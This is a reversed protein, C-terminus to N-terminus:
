SEEEKVDVYKTQYALPRFPVGGEQYFKGFFELYQLRAAHVYTGIINVGINFVHGIVFVIAFAIVNGPLAGLINMVSAIVSTALMLAMLRSYSLVDSLWSTVDYLSAIGGFAKGLIGKKHRGQTLVLAAVGIWLGSATGKLAFLVIGAFLIWWPVVDLFGDLARGDRIEMYIHVCQGFLLQVIGMGIAVILVSMPNTLPSILSPLTITHSMFNQSFVTIADGFFSGTVLGFLITSVGLYIGLQFMYGITKKPHYRVTIIISVVLLLIGYGVDAFMFGFFLIFFAFILPNPDIGKYAPLSYMETVMNICSMWKPNHLLTPVTEESQPESFEYACAFSSLEAELKPIAPVTAFGELFVITGDTLLRERASERDLMQRLCDMAHKLQPRTGGMAAIVAEQETRITNQEALERDVQIIAEAPTGKAVLQAGSFGFSRLTNLAADLESFHAALLLYHQDRDKSIPILESLPTAELCHQMEALDAVIPCVGLSFSVHETSLNELPQQFPLWPTLAAKAATLRNEQAQARTINSLATQIERAISLSDQLTNPNLFDTENLSPRKEFLAGKVPAYKKLADMAHTILSINAKVEGAGSSDKHLLKAWEPDSLANTETIEVCGLHQLRAFLASREEQLAILKLRKMKVIAM